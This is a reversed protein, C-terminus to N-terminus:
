EEPPLASHRRSVLDALQGALRAIKEGDEVGTRWEPPLRGAGLLAGSLNGTICALTDPDGETNAAALVAGAFDGPSRLFALLAAPVTELVFGGTGTAAFGEELPRALLDAVHRIARAMRESTPAVFAAIDAVFAACDLAEPTETGALRAIAYAVAESGAIALPDTHTVRANEGAARRLAEFDDCLWLGLPAARMATGNGAAFIGAEEWSVGRALNGAARLSTVGPGRGDHAGTRHWQAVRRGFDEPDAAGREILSEALLLALQTDDTYQGARLTRCLSDPAPDAFRDLAGWTARIQERALGEAPMGLADGIAGGLLCGAFRDRLRAADAHYDTTVTM